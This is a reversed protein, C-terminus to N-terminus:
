PHVLIKVTAGRDAALAEYGREVVDDLAIRDTVFQEVDLHGDRLLEIVEAHRDAYAVSGILRVESFLLTAMDVAPRESWLAVDVCTGGPTTVALAGNLTAEVGACDFSVDVGDGDTLETIQEVPDGDGPDLVDDAGAKAALDARARGLEVVVIRGAGLARLSAVTMLGIPGAGFVAATGDRTVGSLKAAHYGVALPEILAGQEGTLGPIPHVWQQDVVVREAFGGDRGDLGVFGSRRLHQLPGSSLGRM